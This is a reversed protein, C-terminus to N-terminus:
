RVTFPMECSLLGKSEVLALLGASRGLTSLDWRSIDTGSKWWDAPEYAIVGRERDAIFMIKEGWGSTRCNQGLIPGAESRGRTAGDTARCDSIFLATTCEDGASRLCGEMSLSAGDVDYKAGGRYKGRPVAFVRQYTRVCVYADSSCNTLPFTEQLSSTDPRRARDTVSEPSSQNNIRWWRGGAYREGISGEGPYKYTMTVDGCPSTPVTQPACASLLAVGLATSLRVVSSSPMALGLHLDIAM